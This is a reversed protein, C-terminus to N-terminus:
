WRTSSRSASTRSRPRCAPRYRRSGKPPLGVEKGPREHANTPYASHWKSNIIVAIERESLSYGSPHPQDDLRSSQVDILIQTEIEGVRHIREVRRCDVKTQCDKRPRMEAGGFRRDLHVRQQVQAAVDRAEDVHRIDLQVVNVREVQQERLRACDVDHIPAIDIEGPEM